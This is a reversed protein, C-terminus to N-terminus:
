MHFLDILWIADPVTTTAQFPASCAAGYWAPNPLYKSQVFRLSWLIWILYGLWDHLSTKNRVIYLLPFPEPSMHSNHYVDCLHFGSSILRSTPFHSWLVNPLQSRSLCTTTWCSLCMTHSTANRFASSITVPLFEVCTWLESMRIRGQYNCHKSQCDYRIVKCLKCLMDRTLAYIERPCWVKLWTM